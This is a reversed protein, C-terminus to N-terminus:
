KVRGFIALGMNQFNSGGLVFRRTYEDISVSVGANMNDQGNEDYVKEIKRWYNGYTKFITASGNNTFGDEEDFPAGVMAYDGSVSVAYGFYDDNQPIPNLLKGHYQWTNNITNIKFITASGNNSFGGEDDGNAGIIAYDGSISVATGFWDGSQPNVNLLKVQFEWDNTITNRKFITASGSDTFGDEDDYYAGVIAYDESISVDYGFYDLNQPMYNILTGQSEWDNTITNRKFITASGSDTFGGEDDYRAGVIAYDGSISVSYGFWDGNQPNDNLLKGQSEWINTMTNRKFITASGNNTKGNEDDKFAGVIAYDGSISVDYGFNDLSAQNENVFKGQLEWAHTTINRKFLTASGSDTFGGEDDNYAGVIAYDGSISVSYGFDDGSKGEPDAVPHFADVNGMSCDGWSGEGPVSEGGGSGMAAWHMSGNGNNTLVQGQQGGSGNPKIEGTIKVNGIVDLKETPSGTGIGVRDTGAYMHNPNGGKFWQGLEPKDEGYYTLPKWKNRKGDYILSISSGAKLQITSPNSGSSNPEYLEIMSLSDQATPIMQPFDNNPNGLHYIKTNNLHTFIYIIEGDNGGTITKVNPSISLCNPNEVIHIISKRKANNDINTNFNMSTACNVIVTDSILALEGNISLKSIPNADGIGVNGNNSNSIDDGSLTWNGSGFNDLSNYHSATIEWKDIVDDYKLTVSGGPYVAFTGGTGTLIRNTILANVDDNYIELSHGARNYLTIIRDHEAALIGGIQFNGTPGMLKYHNYKATNIDLDLTNGDALTLTASKLILDGSVDLKAKPDTNGIGVNQSQIFKTELLLLIIFGILKCNKM